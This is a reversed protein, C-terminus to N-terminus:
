IAFLETMQQAHVRRVLVNIQTRLADVTSDNLVRCDHSIADPNESAHNDGAGCGPRDVRVIFGGLKRIAEVENPFRVDDAVVHSTCDHLRRAGDLWRDVWFNEGMMGRGWETGLKQLAYRASKGGLCELPRSKAEDDGDLIEPPVGLVAVMSKLPYAFPRRIFGHHMTLHRAVVSKGSGKYGTLGIIM